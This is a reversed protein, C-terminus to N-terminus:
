YKYSGMYADFIDTQFYNKSSECSYRICFTTELTVRLRIIALWFFLLPFSLFVSNPTLYSLLLQCVTLSLLCFRRVPTLNSSKTSMIHFSVHCNIFARPILFKSSLIKISLNVSLHLYQCFNCLDPFTDRCHFIHLYSSLYMSLPLCLSLSLSVYLSLSSFFMHVNVYM